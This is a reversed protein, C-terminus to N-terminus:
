EVVEAEAVSDVTEVAVPRPTSRLNITVEGSHEHNVKTNHLGSAEALFKHADVRGRKARRGVAAVSEVAGILAEGKYALAMAQQFGADTYTWKRITHRWRRAEAKDGKALRASITSISM